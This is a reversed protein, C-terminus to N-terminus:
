AHRPSGNIRRPYVERHTELDLSARVTDRMSPTPGGVGGDCGASRQDAPTVRTAVSRSDSAARQDGPVLNHATM